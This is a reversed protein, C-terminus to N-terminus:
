SWPEVPSASCIGPGRESKYYFIWCNGGTFKIVESGGDCNHQRSFIDQPNAFDIVGTITNDLYVTGTSGPPTGCPEWTGLTWSCWTANDRSRGSRRPARRTASTATTSSTRRGPRRVVSSDLELDPEGQHLHPHRQRRHAPRQGPDRHDRHWVSTDTGHDIPLVAYRDPLQRDRGPPQANQSAQTSLVVGLSVASTMNGVLPWPREPTNKITINLSAPTEGWLNHNPATAYETVTTGAIDAPRRRRSGPTDTPTSTGCSCRGAPRTNKVASIGGSRRDGHADADVVLSRSNTNDYLPVGTMSHVWPGTRWEPRTESTTARSATSPSSWRCATTRSMGRIVVMQTDVQIGAMGQNELRLHEISQGYVSQGFRMGYECGKM